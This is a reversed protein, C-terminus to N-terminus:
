QKKLTSFQSLSFHASHFNLKCFLQRCCEVEDECIQALVLLDEASCEDIFHNQYKEVLPCRAIDLQQCLEDLTIAYISGGWLVSIDVVRKSRQFSHLSNINNPPVVNFIVARQFLIRMTERTRYGIWMTASSSGLQAVLKEFFHHLLKKESCRSNRKIIQVPRGEITWAVCVIERDINTKIAIFIKM